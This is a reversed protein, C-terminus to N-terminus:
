PAGEQGWFVRGGSTTCKDGKTYGLTGGVWTQLVELHASSGSGGSSSGSGSGGGGGRRILVIDAWAGARLSGLPEGGGIGLAAAPHSTVAALADELGAGTFTIFNNVCLDLPVVAGALVHQKTREDVLAREAERDYLVAHLGKYPGGADGRKVEVCLDGLMHVGAPMGMATMADTVLILGSPHTEFALSVAYPHVHVGDAILSYFPRAAAVSRQQPDALTVVAACPRAYPRRPTASSGLPAAGRGSGGSTGEQPQFQLARSVGEGGGGGGGGAGGEAQQRAANVLEAARLLSGTPTHPTGCGGVEGAVGGREVSAANVAASPRQSFSGASGSSSGGTPGLPAESPLQQPADTSLVPSHAASRSYNTARLPTQAHALLGAAAPPPPAATGVAAAAAKGGQQQSYFSAMGGANATVTATIPSESSSRSSSSSGEGHSRSGPGPYPVQSYASVMEVTKLQLTLAAALSSSKGASPASAVDGGGERAQGQQPTLVRHVLFPALDDGADVSSSGSASSSVGGCGGGSSSSSGSTAEWQGEVLGLSGAGRPRRGLLGVVGPERHMFTNMANFLHTILCAGAEVARDAVDIGASTHGISVLVGADALARVARLGGPLEPALTVLRVLGSAWDVPGYVRELAQLPHEAGETAPDRLNHVNHAGKKERCLFPGELHLGLMRAAARPLAPAAAAPQEAAAGAPQQKVLAANATYLRDLLGQFRKLMVAYTDSSVSVLTPLFSTVGTQLLKTAM